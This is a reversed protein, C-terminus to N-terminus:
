RVFCEPSRTGRLHPEATHMFVKDAGELVKSEAGEVDIKILTPPRHTGSLVDLTTCEVEYSDPFNGTVIKSMGTNSDPGAQSSLLKVKGPHSWVAQEVIDITSGLSNRAINERLLAINRRDPELAVISGKM